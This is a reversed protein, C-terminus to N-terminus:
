RVSPHKGAQRYQERFWDVTRRLGEDFGVLPEYALLDRAKSIDARSHLIDGPRQRVYAPPLETHLLINLKDVLHPSLFSCIDDILLVDFRESSADQPQM